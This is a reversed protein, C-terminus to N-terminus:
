IGIQKEYEGVEYKIAKCKTCRYGRKLNEKTPAPVTLKGDEILPSIQNEWYDRRWDHKCNSKDTQPKTKSM